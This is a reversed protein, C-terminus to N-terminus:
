FTSVRSEVPHAKEGKIHTTFVGGDHLISLEPGYDMGAQDQYQTSELNQIGAQDQWQTEKFVKM